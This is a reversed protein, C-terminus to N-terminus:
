SIRRIYEFAASIPGVTQEPTGGVGVETPVFTLTGSYHTIWSVSDTSYSFDYTTGTKKIRLFHIGHRDYSTNASLLGSYLSYSTHLNTVLQTHDGYSTIGILALKQATTGEIVCMYAPKAYNDTPALSATVCVEYEWDGSGPVPITQTKDNTGAEGAASLYLRGHSETWTPATGAYQNTWAADISADDFEDDEADVTETSPRRLLNGFWSDVIVNHQAHLTNHDTVHDAATDSETRAEDLAM